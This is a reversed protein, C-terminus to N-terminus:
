RQPEHPAGHRSGQWVIAGVEQELEGALDPRGAARVIDAISLYWWIKSTRGVQFRAWVMSGHQESDRLTAQANHMADAWKLAVATPGGARISALRDRKRDQWPRESRVDDPEQETVVGVLEAVGAGFRASLADLTVACDEVVDHLLAAIIIDGGFGRQMLLEAVAVPHTIYPIASGKRVQMAHQEAAFQLADAYRRAFGDGGGGAPVIPSMHGAEHGSTQWIIAAVEQELEGALDGRGAERVVDCVSLYWWVQATRGVKFRTWVDAGIQELGRRISQANHLADAWKLAVALPSGGRVHALQEHKRLEWPLASGDDDRKRESVLGVLEAVGAGFRTDLEDLTVDCDEVVDHLLAAVIIDGGFGRQMLLEAVAVPHTIYPIASGKRLQFRHREAAFCLADTYRTAPTSTDDTM